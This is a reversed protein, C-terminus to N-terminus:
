RRERRALQAQIMRERARRERRARAIRARARDVTQLPLRRRLLVYIGLGLLAGAAGGAVVTAPTRGMRDVLQRASSVGTRAARGTRTVASRTRDRLAARTRDAAHVMAQRARAKVDARAALESLTEGLDARVRTIENRLAANADYPEWHEYPRGDAQPGGTPQRDTQRATM